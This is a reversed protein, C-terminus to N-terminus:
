WWSRKLRRAKEPLAHTCPHNTAMLAFAAGVIFGVIGSITAVTGM